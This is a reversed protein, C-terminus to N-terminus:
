RMTERNANEKEDVDFDNRRLEDALSRADKVASAIPLMADPYSGNGIVLAFRKSSAAGPAQALAEASCFVGLLM